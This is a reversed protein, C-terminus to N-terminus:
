CRTRCHFIPQMFVQSVQEVFREILSELVPPLLAANACTIVMSGVFGSTM